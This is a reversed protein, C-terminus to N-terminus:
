SAVEPVPPLLVVLVIARAGLNNNNETFSLLVLYFHILEQPTASQSSHPRLTQIIPNDFATPEKSVPQITSNNKEALNRLFTSLWSLYPAASSQAKSFTHEYSATGDWPMLAPGESNVLYNPTARTQCSEALVMTLGNESADIRALTPEITLLLYTEGTKNPAGLVDVDIRNGASGTTCSNNLLLLGINSQNEKDISEPLRTVILEVSSALQNPQSRISELCPVLEIKSSQNSVAPIISPQAQVYAMQIKVIPYAATLGGLIILFSLAVTIAMNRQAKATKATLRAINDIRQNVKPHTALIEPRRAIPSVLFLGSTVRVLLDEKPFGQLAKYTKSLARALLRPQDLLKAGDEDALMERERQAASATFYAFPNFFSVMMLAYSLTKFFFDHKKIHSLEHAAVAALEKEDLVRLMGVSFVLMTKNGYGAVFANPRLDEMIGITPPRIALKQSLAEIKRQLPSYEEQALPIIHFVRAVIKDDLAIMLVLYGLAVILGISCLLGTVSIIETQSPFFALVILPPSPPSMTPVSQLQGFLPQFPLANTSGGNLSTIFIGAASNGNATSMTITPHFTTFVLLPIILPLLYAISRKKRSLSHDYKLFAKVCIFSIVLLIISYYFYPQFVQALANNLATPLM